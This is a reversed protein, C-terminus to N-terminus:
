LLSSADASSTSITRCGSLSDLPAGYSDHAHFRKEHNHKQATRQPRPSFPFPLFLLSPPPAILFVPDNGFMLAPQGVLLDRLHKANPRLPHSLEYVVVIHPHSLQAVARAERRFRELQNSDGAIERHMVKIAVQRELTQDFARYVTSMGGSGVKADLRYRNNLQMGVLTTM